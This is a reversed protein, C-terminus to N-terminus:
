YPTSYSTPSSLFFGMIKKIPERLKIGAIDINRIARADRIDRWTKKIRPTRSFYTCTYSSIHTHTKKRLPLSCMKYM